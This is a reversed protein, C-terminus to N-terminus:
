NLNLNLIKRGRAWNVSYGTAWTSNNYLENRESAMKYELWFLSFFVNNIIIIILIATTTRPSLSSVAALILHDDGADGSAPYPIVINEM